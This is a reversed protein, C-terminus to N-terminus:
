NFNIIDKVLMLKNYVDECYARRTTNFLKWHEPEAQYNRYKDAHKIAAELNTILLEEGNLDM